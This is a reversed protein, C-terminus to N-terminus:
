TFINCGAPSPTWRHSLGAELAAVQNVILSFRYPGSVMIVKIGGAGAVRKAMGGLDAYGWEATVRSGSPATGIRRIVDAGGQGLFDLYIEVQFPFNVQGANASVFSARTDSSIQDALPLSKWDLNDRSLSDM